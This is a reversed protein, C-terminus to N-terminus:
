QGKTLMAVSSLPMATSQSVMSKTAAQYAKYHDSAQYATFAAADNFASFLLVHNDKTQSV